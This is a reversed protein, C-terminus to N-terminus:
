PSGSPLKSQKSVRKLLKEANNRRGKPYRITKDGWLNGGLLHFTKNESIFSLIDVDHL